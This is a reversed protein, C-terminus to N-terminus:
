RSLDELEHEARRLTAPGVEIGLGDVEGDEGRVEVEVAARDVESRLLRVTIGTDGFRVGLTVVKQEYRDDKELVEAMEGCAAALMRVDERPVSRELYRVLRGPEVLEVDLPVEASVHALHPTPLLGVAGGADSVLRVGPAASLVDTRSHEARDERDRRRRVQARSPRRGRGLEGASERGPRVGDVLDSAGDHGPRVGETLEGASERGSRVADTLDSAGDRQPRIGESLAPDVCSPFPRGHVPADPRYRWPEAGLDMVPEGGVSWLRPTDWLDTPAYPDWEHRCAECVSHVVGPAHEEDTLRFGAAPDLVVTADTATHTVQHSGCRDCTTRPATTTM